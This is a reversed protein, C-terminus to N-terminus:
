TPKRPAVLLLDFPAENTRILPVALFNWATKVISKDALLPEAAKKMLSFDWSVNEM